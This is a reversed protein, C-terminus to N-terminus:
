KARIAMSWICNKQMSRIAFIKQWIELRQLISKKYLGNSLWDKLRSPIVHIFSIDCENKTQIKKILASVTRSSPSFDTAFLLKIPQTM